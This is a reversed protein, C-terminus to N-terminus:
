PQATMAQFVGSTLRECVAKVLMRMLMLIKEMGVERGLAWGHVDTETFTNSVTLNAFCDVFTAAAIAVHAGCKAYGALAPFTSAQGLLYYSFGEAFNLAAL